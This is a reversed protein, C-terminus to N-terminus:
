ITPKYSASYMSLRKGVVYLAVITIILSAVIALNGLMLSLSHSATAGLTSLLPTLISTGCASCGLGAAAFLGAIGTQGAAGAAKNLSHQRRIVFSLASITFGQLMSMIFVLALIWSGGQAGISTFTGAILQIKVAVPISFTSLIHGLLGINNIWFLLIYLVIGISLSGLLYLPKYRFFEYLTGLSHKIHM